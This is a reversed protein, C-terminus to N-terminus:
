QQRAELYALVWEMIRAMAARRAAYDLDSMDNVEDYLKRIDEAHMEALALMAHAHVAAEEQVTALPQEDLNVWEGFFLILTKALAWRRGYDTNLDTKKRRPFPVVTAM